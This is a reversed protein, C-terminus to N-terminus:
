KETGTDSSYASLALLVSMGMILIGPTAHEWTAVYAGGLFVLLCVGYIGNKVDDKTM